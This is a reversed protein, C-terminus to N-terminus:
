RSRRGTDDRDYHPQNQLSLGVITRGKPKNVPGRKVIDPLVAPLKHFQTHNSRNPYINQPQGHDDRRPVGKNSLNRPSMITGVSKM